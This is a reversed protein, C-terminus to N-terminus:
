EPLVGGVLVIACLFREIESLYVSCHDHVVHACLWGTPSTVPTM